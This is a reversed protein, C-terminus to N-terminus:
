DRHKQFTIVLLLKMALELWDSAEVTNYVKGNGGMIEIYRFEKQSPLKLCKEGSQRHVWTSLTSQPIGAYKEMMNFGFGVNPQGKGLGNPDIVIVEFEKGEFTLTILQGQKISFDM